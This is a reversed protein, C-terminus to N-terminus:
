ISVAKIRVDVDEGVAEGENAVRSYELMGRLLFCTYKEQSCLASVSSQTKM